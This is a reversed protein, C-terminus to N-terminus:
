CYWASGYLNLIADTALLACKSMSCTLCLGPGSWVLNIKVSCLKVSKSKVKMNDQLCYPSTIIKFITNMDIESRDMQRHRSKVPMTFWWISCATWGAHEPDVAPDGGVWWSVCNANLPRVCLILNLNRVQAQLNTCFLLMHIIVYCLLPWKVILANVLPIYQLVLYCRDTQLAHPASLLFASFHAPLKDVPLEIASPTSRESLYFIFLYSFIFYTPSRIYKARGLYLIHTPFLLVNLLRPELNGAPLKTPWQTPSGWKLM